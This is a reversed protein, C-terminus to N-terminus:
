SYFPVSLGPSISLLRVPRLASVARFLLLPSNSDVSLLLNIWFSSVVIFDFWNYSNEFFARSPRRNKNGKAHKFKSWHKLKRLMEDSFCGFTIMKMLLEMSDHTSSYSGVNVPAVSRYIIFIALLAYDSKIYGFITPAKVKKPWSQICYIIFNVFILLTVGVM